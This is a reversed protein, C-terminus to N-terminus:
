ASTFLQAFRRAAARPDPALFVGSVVAVFDAGARVLQPANEPTIGGIAAVPTAFHAKANRLV